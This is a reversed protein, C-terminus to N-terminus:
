IPLTDVPDQKYPEVKDVTMEYGTVGLKTDSRTIRITGSIWASPTVTIPNKAKVVMHIIQNAPPAPAHICAGFYPVLLFDRTKEREGDLPVVFGPIRVRKNDLKPNTPAQNWMERIKKMVERAKPDNDELENMNLSELEKDVSWGEPLLTEWLIEEYQGAPTRPKARALKDGIRYGSDPSAAQATRDGAAWALTGYASICALMLAGFIMSITVKM